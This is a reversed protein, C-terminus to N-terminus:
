AAEKQRPQEVVSLMEEGAKQIEKAAKPNTQQLRQMHMALHRQIAAQGAPAVPKNARANQAIYQVLVSAHAADDDSQGPLIMLGQELAPIEMRQLDGQEQVQLQPDVFLRKVLGPEDLELISKDLEAQNIHPSTGLLQKRAMAKRLRKQQNWSDSSGNPMVSVVDAFAEKDIQSLKEDRLYELDADYQKLLEFALTYAEGLSKRFNRSRMDVVTSSTAGIAEIETATKRESTNLPQATGFDPTALRQEAVLRTNNMEQDWSIPPNGRDVPAIKYPLIDGPRMRVNGANPIDRDTYFLPRNYFSMADHKENWMKCLSAEFPAAVEAVGRPSYYAKDTKEFTFEVFPHLKERRSSFKYPLVFSARVSENWAAPSITHVKWGSATKEYVEWVIIIDRNSSHTIGERRAKADELKQAENDSQGGKIRAVFDSDKRRLDAGEGHLYEWESFHRVHVFRSAKSLKTCNSPVILYIPEIADFCLRKEEANWAVKLIGRANQLMSDIVYTIQDELDSQQKLKYDFWWAVGTMADGAQPNKSIFDALRETAFLQNLYFPKFKEITSDILPFHMDAAGPFPKNQRRLGDRRMQYWVAQRDAWTTRDKIDQLIADYLTKEMPKTGRTHEPWRM